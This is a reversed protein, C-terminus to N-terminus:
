SNPPNTRRLKEWLPQIKISLNHPRIVALVMSIYLIELCTPSLQGILHKIYLLQVVIRMRTSHVQPPVHERLARRYNGRAVQRKTAPIKLPFMIRRTESQSANMVYRIWTIIGVHALRRMKPVDLVVAFFIIFELALRVVVM